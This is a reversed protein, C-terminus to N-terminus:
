GNETSGVDAYGRHRKTRALRCFESEAEHTQGFTEMMSQGFTGIRGWTRVVSTDGFLTQQLVLTHFRRMNQSPDIRRLHLSSPEENSM